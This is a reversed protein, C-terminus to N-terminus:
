CWAPNALVLGYFENQGLASHWASTHVGECLGLPWCKAYHHQGLLWVTALPYSVAICATTADALLSDLSAHGRRSPPPPMDLCDQYPGSCLFCRSSNCVSVRNQRAPERPSRCGLSGSPMVCTSECHRPHPEWCVWSVVRHWPFFGTVAALRRACPLLIPAEARPQKRRHTATPKHSATASM